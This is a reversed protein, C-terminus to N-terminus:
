VRDILCVVKEEVYLVLKRIRLARFMADRVMDIGACVVFVGVACLVAYLFFVVATTDALFFFGGRMVHERIFPHDHILYVGFSAKALAEAVRAVGTNIQRIRTFVALLAFASLVMTPATYRMLLTPSIQAELGKEQVVMKLLWAALFCIAAMLMGIVGTCKPLDSEVRYFMGGVLYMAMLWLASYGHNVGYIDYQLATQQGSLLLLIGVACMVLLKKPMGNVAYGLVPAFVLMGFYATVYWYQQYTVPLVANLLEQKGVTGPWLVLAILTIFVTYFTVQLWHMITSSLRVQRQVGLYGSIMAFANVGASTVAYLFWAPGYVSGSTKVAAMVGGHELVHYGCIMVMALIKLLDVGTNREKGM